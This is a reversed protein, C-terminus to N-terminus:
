LEPSVWIWLCNLYFISRLLFFVKYSPCWEELCPACTAYFDVPLTHPKQLCREQREINQHLPVLASKSACLATPTDFGWGLGGGLLQHSTVCLAAWSARFNSTCRVAFFCIQMEFKCDELRQHYDQTPVPPNDKCTSGSRMCATAICLVATNLLFHPSVPARKRARDEKGHFSFWSFRQLTDASVLTVRSQSTCRSLSLHRSQDWPPM